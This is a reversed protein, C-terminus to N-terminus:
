MCECVRQSTEVGEVCLLKYVYHKLLFLFVYVHTAGVVKLNSGHGNCYM